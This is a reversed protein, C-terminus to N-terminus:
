SDFEMRSALLSVSEDSTAVSVESNNTDLNNGLTSPKSDVTARKFDRFLM